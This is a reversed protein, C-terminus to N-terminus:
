IAKRENLRLMGKIIRILTWVFFVLLILYGVVAATLICGLVFLLAGLWFTRIQFKFHSRSIDDSTSRKIYAILVGIPATILFVYGTLYLIYVTLAIGADSVVPEPTSTITPARDSM